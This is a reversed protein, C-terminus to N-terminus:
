DSEEDDDGGPSLMIYYSGVAVGKIGSGHVEFYDNEHLHLALYLAILLVNLAVALSAAMVLPRHLRATVFGILCAGLLGAVSFYFLNNLYFGPEGGFWCVTKVGAAAGTGAPPVGVRRVAWVAAFYVGMWVLPLLIAVVLHRWGLRRWARQRWAVALVMGVIMALLPWLIANAVSRRWCYRARLLHTRIPPGMAPKLRLAQAFAALASRNHGLWMRNLGILYHIQCLAPHEQYRDLLSALMILRQRLKAPESSPREAERRLEASEAFQDLLPQLRAIEAEPSPMGVPMAGCAGAKRWYEMAGALDGAAEEYFKALRAYLVAKEQQDATADLGQVLLKEGAVYNGKGFEAEAESIPSALVENVAIVALVATAIGAIGFWRRV